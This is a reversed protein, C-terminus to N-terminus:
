CGNELYGMVKCWYDMKCCISSYMLLDIMQGNMSKGIICSWKELNDLFQKKADGDKLVGLASQISCAGLSVHEYTYVGYPMVEKHCDLKFCKGLDKFPKPM